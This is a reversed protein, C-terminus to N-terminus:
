DASCESQLEQATRLEQHAKCENVVSKSVGLVQRISACLAEWHARESSIQPRLIGSEDMGVRGNVESDEKRIEGSRHEGNRRRRMGNRKM